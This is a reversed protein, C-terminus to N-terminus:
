AGVRASMDEAMLLLINPRQKAIVPNAILVISVFFYTVALKLANYKNM